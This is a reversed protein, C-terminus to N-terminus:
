RSRFDEARIGHRKLLRHFTEREVGAREAAQTVNGGMAALLAVLYDHTTRERGAALVERYTLSTIPPFAEAIAARSRLSAPLDKVEIPGVDAVAAARLLVAELQRANGSWDHAVLADIADISLARPATGVDSGRNLLAHALLPIDQRRLRLPPLDIRMESILRYLDERFLGREVAPSLDVSSSAIIRPLAGLPECGRARQELLQALRTQVVQEMEFIEDIYLTGGAAHELDLELRSESSSRARHIVFPRQQRRGAQHISRAVLDKGTGSEGSILVSADSRAARGILERADVIAHSEGVIPAVAEGIAPAGRARRREIARDIAAVADNPDFPKTLYDDAGYKMARVAEAITGYATMLVVATHESSARIKRLVELGDVGPMRVDTIVVDFTETALLELARDGDAAVFLETDAPLIQRFLALFSGKDDVVLIRARKM